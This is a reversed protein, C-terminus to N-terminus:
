SAGVDDTLVLAASSGFGIRVRQGAALPQHHLPDRVDVKLRVGAAAEVDYRLAHGLYSALIVRAEVINDGGNGVVLNEPRVALVCRGGPRVGDAAVGRVVGLATDITARDAAVDRCVGPVFNNVGVFDAVFRSRPREYLERPPATQLIVGDRMVAVRDSLSLAEEQDHTVYVTTIGLDKQLTRIEARVQVRIKADLNSLPEDLLLIDPNLVLARALAVRQQQGGSLQGPYREALGALNVKRLGEALRRAIEATSLKRLKLGYTINAAVTMHPWLAYNQFVMGINRVHPALDDVRRGGFWIEGGDPRYFGAMLRLLTTKGCGSPGLLTFLEGDAIDLTAHDVAATAGFKKSVARLAINM